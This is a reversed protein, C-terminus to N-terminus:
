HRGSEDAETPAAFSGDEAPAFPIAEIVADLNLPGYVHPFRQGEGALDEDRLEASLRDPDIVLLVLDPVDRYYAGAVQPVQSAFSCHIFGVEALSLGRTSEAYSGASRAQNWASATTIHYIRPV